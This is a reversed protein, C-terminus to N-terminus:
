EHRAGETSCWPERLIEYGANVERIRLGETPFAKTFQVYIRLQISDIFTNDVHPVSSFLM